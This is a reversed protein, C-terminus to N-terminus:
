NGRILDPTILSWIREWQLLALLNRIFATHMVAVNFSHYVLCSLTLLCHPVLGEASQWGSDGSSREVANM